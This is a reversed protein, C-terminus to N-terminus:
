PLPCRQAKWSGQVSCATTKTDSIECTAVNPSSLLMASAHLSPTLLFLSGGLPAAVDQTVLPVKALVNIGTLEATPGM